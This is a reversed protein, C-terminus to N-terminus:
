QLKSAKEFHFVPLAGKKILESCASDCEERYTSFISARNGAEAIQSAPHAVRLNRPSPKHM